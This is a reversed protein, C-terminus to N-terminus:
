WCIVIPPSAQSPDWPSASIRIFTQLYKNILWISGWICWSKAPEFDLSILPAFLASPIKFLDTQRPPVRHSGWSQWFGEEMRQQAPATTSKEKADKRDEPGNRKNFSNTGWFGTLSSKEFFKKLILQFHEEPKSLASSLLFARVPNRRSTIEQVVPLTAEDWVQLGIREVLAKGERGKHTIKIEHTVPCALPLLSICHCSNHKHHNQRCWFHFSSYGWYPLERQHSNCSIKRAWFPQHSKTYTGLCKSVHSIFLAM